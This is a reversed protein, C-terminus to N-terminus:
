RLTVENTTTPYAAFLGQLEKEVYMVNLLLRPPPSNHHGVEEIHSENRREIDRILDRLEQIKRDKTVPAKRDLVDLENQWRDHKEQLWESYPPHGDVAQPEAMCPATVFTLCTTLLILPLLKIKM